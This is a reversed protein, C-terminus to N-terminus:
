APSFFKGNNESSSTSNNNASFLSFFDPLIYYSNSEPQQSANAPKEITTGNSSSICKFNIPLVELLGLPQHMSAFLDRGSSSSFGSGVGGAGGPGGGNAGGVGGAGSGSSGVGGGGLGGLGGVVGAANAGGVSGISGMPNNVSLGVSGFSFTIANSVLQQQSQMQQQQQQQGGGVGGGVGSAGSQQQGGLGGAGGGGLLMGGAALQQLQQELHNSFKQENVDFKFYLDADFLKADFVLSSFNFRMKLLAYFPNYKHGSSLRTLVGICQDYARRVNLGMVQHLLTFYWNLAASSEFCLLYRMLVLLKDLLLHAFQKHPDLKANLLLTLLMTAKRSTSRNGYLFCNTLLKDLSTGMLQEKLFNLHASEINAHNYVIWTLMDLTKLQVNPDITASSANEQQQQQSTNTFMHALLKSFFAPKTLMLSREISENALGHRRYKRITIQIKHLLQTQSGVVSANNPNVGSPPRTSVSVASAYRLNLYILNSRTEYLKPSCITMTYTKFNSADLYDRVDIPGYILENKESM